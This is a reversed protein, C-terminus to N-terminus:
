PAGLERALAAVWSAPLANVDAAEVEVGGPLRVAVRAGADGGSVVTAPLFTLPAMPTARGVRQGAGAEIRKRWWGLRWTGIGHERGFAALSSGSARWVGLVKRATKANWRGAILDADLSTRAGM